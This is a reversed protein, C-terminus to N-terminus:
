SNPQWHRAKLGYRCLLVKRFADRFAKNFITYFIPNVLSSAYGLWTVFEFVWQDINDECHKCVSPLLNLVFFPAWLIVFTFFVVGLVKTAKQELRIIRGHRSSNRSIMSSNRSHHSRVAMTTTALTPVTSSAAAVAMMAVATGNGGGGGGTQHQMLCPSSSNKKPAGRFMTEGASGGGGGCSGGGGGELASHRLNISRRLSVSSPSAKTPTLLLSTRAGGFSSGRRQHRRQDWTVVSIGKPASGKRSPSALASAPLTSLSSSISRTPQTTVNSGSSISITSYVLSDGNSAAGGMPGFDTSTKVIKIEAPRLYQQRGPAGEGFFPCKCPPPLKLTAASQSPAALPHAQRPGDPNSGADRGERRDSITRSLAAPVGDLGAASPRASSGHVSGRDERDRLEYLVDQMFQEDVEIDDSAPPPLAHPLSKFRKRVLRVPPPTGSNRRAIWTSTSSRRKKSPVPSRVTVMTVPAPAHKANAPKKRFSEKERSPEPTRSSGNQGQNRDSHQAVSELGQSLKLMEEGFRQMATMTISSPEPISSELLWLDHNDLTSLETDTSAASHAHPNQAAPLSLKIIRKWTNRRDFAPAQGLWGSSWGGGSGVGGLNESQQALLRVTLTYTILMVCLPIYFCVISGVLKYVPDPIQCTGDVLVSAHNKSYMLSLPLSMAISLLWVFSIKLVVRRRTKNRGFKMPYRLSLYRDVSITCLHMISATCFLVDLCIWVLCYESDLPFHGKVLTLIGLPMVSLAVMLDTIALSMLFYNTVNQLRREWVIALCVLINGAATGFVLIIALLAWYNHLALSSGDDEDDDADIRDPGLGAEAGTRNDIPNGTFNFQKMYSAYGTYAPPRVLGGALGRVGVGVTAGALTVTATNSLHQSAFPVSSLRVFQVPKRSSWLWMEVPDDNYPFRGM